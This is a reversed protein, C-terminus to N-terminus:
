GEPEVAAAAAAAAVASGVREREQRGFCATGQKLGKILLLVSGERFDSASRLKDLDNAFEKTAQRLCFDEFAKEPDVPQPKSPFIAM